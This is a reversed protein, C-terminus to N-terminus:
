TEETLLCALAVTPFLMIEKDTPQFKFDCDLFLGFRRVLEM